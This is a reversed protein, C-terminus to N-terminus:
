TGPALKMKRKPKAAAEGGLKKGVEQVQAVIAGPDVGLQGSIEGWNKGSKVLGLVDQKPKGSVSSTALLAAINGYSIKDDNLYSQIEEKQVGFQGMLAEEAKGADKSAEADIRGIEENLVDAASGQALCPSPASLMQSGFFVAATITVWFLIGKFESM